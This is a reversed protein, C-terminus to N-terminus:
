KAFLDGQPAWVMIEGAPNVVWVLLNRAKAKMIIDDTGPSKGECRFAVLADAYNAMETNRMHGAARGYTEWDAPFRKMNVLKWEAWLAGLADAGQAGGCVVENIPHPFKKLTDAVLAANTWTRSGAIIVKM